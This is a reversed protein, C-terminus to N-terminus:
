VRRRIDVRMQCRKCIRPRSSNKKKCTFSLSLSCVPLSDWKSRYVKSYTDIVWSKTVNIVNKLYAFLNNNIFNEKWIIKRRMALFFNGYGRLSVSILRKVVISYFPVNENSYKTSVPVEKDGDINADQESEYLLSFLGYKYSIFM